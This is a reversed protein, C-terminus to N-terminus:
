NSSGTMSAVPPVVPTVEFGSVVTDWNENKKRRALKGEFLCLQGAELEGAAEARRGWCECPVYLEHVKGDQGLEGVVLTFSACPAGSSAYRVEVGYKSITGVLLCRNVGSMGLVKEQSVAQVVGRSAWQLFRGCAACDLRGAHPGTGPGLRPVACVGCHGCLMPPLRPKVPAAALHYPATEEM